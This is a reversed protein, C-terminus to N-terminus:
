FYVFMAIAVIYLCIRYCIGGAAACVLATTPAKVSDALKKNKMSRWSEIAPIVAGVIVAGIWFLPAASGMLPAALTSSPDPDPATPDITWFSRGVTAIDITSVYGMCIINVVGSVIASVLAVTALKGETVDSQKQIAAVLWVGLVGLVLESSYYYLYLTANGWAPRAYMDYSHACVFGMVIAVVMSVVAMAKPFKAPGEGEPVRKWLILFTVILVVAIVVVAIIEHTIGSTIHGFGNFIRLPHKLHLLSAFGGIAIVVLAVGSLVLHFKRDGRGLYLLLGQFGMMGASLCFLLTFIILPIQVEM